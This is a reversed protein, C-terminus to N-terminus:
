AHELCQACLMSAARWFCISRAALQKHSELSWPAWLGSETWGGVRSAPPCAASNYPRRSFFRHHFTSPAKIVGCGRAEVAWSIRLPFQANTGWINVSKMKHALGSLLEQEFITKRFKCSEVLRSRIPRSDSTTFAQEGLRELSLLFNNSPEPAVRPSSALSQFYFGTDSLKM